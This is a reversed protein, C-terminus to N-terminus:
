YYKSINPATYVTRLLCMVAKSSMAVVEVKTIFGYKMYKEVGLKMAWKGNM